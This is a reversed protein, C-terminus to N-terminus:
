LSATSPPFLTKVLRTPCGVEVARVRVPFDFAAPLSRLPGRNSVRKAAPEADPPLNQAGDARSVGVYARGIQEPVGAMVAMVVCVVAAVLVLCLVRVPKM